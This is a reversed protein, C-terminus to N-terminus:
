FNWLKQGEKSLVFEIFEIALARHPAGRLLGIPDADLATGLPPMAFGLRAGGDPTRASEAQFRGYFDICMGAAADGTAVDLPVKTAADAFYRANAAIRRILRMAREWGENRALDERALSGEKPNESRGEQELESFRENMQEAILMEFARAA